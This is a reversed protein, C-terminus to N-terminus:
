YDAIIIVWALFNGSSHTRLWCHSIFLEKVGQVIEWCLEVVLAELYNVTLFLASSPM